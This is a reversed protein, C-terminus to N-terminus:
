LKAVLEVESRLLAGAEDYYFNATVRQDELVSAVWLSDERNMQDFPIDSVPYWSPAMEETEIPTGKWATIVYVHCEHTIAHDYYTVLGRKEWVLPIVTSEEQTERLACADVTEEPEKKGGYGNLKGSLFGRKKRALCVMPVGDLVHLLFCITMVKKAKTNM